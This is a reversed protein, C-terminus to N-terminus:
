EKWLDYYYYGSRVVHPFWGRVEPTRVNMGLPMDVPIGIANEIAIEQIEKYIEARKVPDAESVGAQVLEDLNERCYERFAEGQRGGYPGYSAYFTAIFNHPDPYDALWGIVFCALLEAKQAALYTPWQVGQVDLKFKPNISEIYFKLMEMVTQRTDNGTNYLLQLKFGKEWLEGGWAKKFHEAAKTLDFEPLPLSGDYGLFGEPLDAPVLKGLGNVVESIFTAGDYCYGFAKRVDIDTFFDLPIGEGDLKGSGVYESGEKIGWNFHITNVQATPYGTTLVVKGENQLEIAQDLYSAGFYAIDADGAEIISKRTSFEDIGDIIVTKLKAAGNFYDDYRELIIKQQARDWEVLEFPGSGFDATHFPTDEPRMDHWKWWGDANGDWAGAEIGAKSDVVASWYNYHAIINMFPAFPAELTFVVNNGDVEVAPDIVDNYFAILKEKADESTPENNEDVAETYPMGTYGEFWAEVSAFEGGSLAEMMMWMPGASPDYLLGREFSWEVDYPTIPNGSHFTAGEVMPFTYVTSGESILGNELSPVETSLMPAMETTSEGVYKVLNDYMNNIVEGSATDYAYHPDLTEPEGIDLSVFVDKELAAFSVTVFFLAVLLFLVVKKVTNGGKISIKPKLYNSM